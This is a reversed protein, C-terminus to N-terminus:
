RCTPRNCGPTCGLYAPTTGLQVESGESFKKLRDRTQILLLLCLAVSQTPLVGDFHQCSQRRGALDM